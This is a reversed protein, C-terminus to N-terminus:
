TGIRDCFAHRRQQGPTLSFEKKYATTFHSNSQFGCAVCIETLSLRSQMLLQRARRLRLSRYHQMVSHGTAAAFMRLLKRETVGCRESLEVLSLPLEMNSEMVEMVESLLKRSSGFQAVQQRADTRRVTEVAFQDSIKAVIAAGMSLNVIYLMMELPTVGGSCSIRDRDIKFICRTFEVDLFTEAQAILYEWHTACEYGGLLRAKALVYSGTCIGGLVTGLRAFRQVSELHEAKTLRHVDNGGCVFLVHASHVRDVHIADIAIGNSATVAAGDISCVSWQFHDMGSVQNAMRLVEVANVFAIMSFNPILLFAFHRARALM